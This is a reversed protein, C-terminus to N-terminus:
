KVFNNLQPKADTLNKGSSYRHTACNNNWYLSANRFAFGSKLHYLNGAGGSRVKLVLGVLLFCSDLLPPVCDVSLTLDSYSDESQVFGSLRSPCDIWGPLNASSDCIPPSLERNVGCFVSDGSSCTAILPMASFSTGFGGFFLYVSDGKWLSWFLSQLASRKPSFFLFLASDFLLSCCSVTLNSQSKDFQENIRIYLKMINCRRKLSKWLPFNNWWNSWLPHSFRLLNTQSMVRAVPLSCNGYRSFTYLNVNDSIGQQVSSSYQDMQAVSYVFVFVQFHTVRGFDQQLIARRCSPCDLSIYEEKKKPGVFTWGLSSIGNRRVDAFLCIGQATLPSVTRTSFQFMKHLPLQKMELQWNHKLHM